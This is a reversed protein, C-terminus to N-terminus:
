GNVLRKIEKQCNQKDREVVKIFEGYIHKMKENTDPSMWKRKYEALVENYFRINEQYYGISEKIFKKEM